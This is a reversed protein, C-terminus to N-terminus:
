DCHASFINFYLLLNFLRTVKGQTQDGLFYDQHACTESTMGGSVPNGAEFCKKDNKFDKGRGLLSNALTSKGVGAGGLM